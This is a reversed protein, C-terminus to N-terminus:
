ASMIIPPYRLLTCYRTHMCVFGAGPTCRCCGHDADQTHIIRLSTSIHVYRWEEAQSRTLPPTRSLFKRRATRKLPELPAAEGGGEEEQGDAAAAGEVEEQQLSSDGSLDAVATEGHDVLISSSTSSSGEAVGGIDLLDIAECGGGGELDNLLDFLKNRGVNSNRPKRQGQQEGRKSNVDRAEEGDVAASSADFDDDVWAAGGLQTDEGGNEQVELTSAAGTQSCALTAGSTRRRSRSAVAVAAASPARRQQQWVSTPTACSPERTRTTTASTATKTTSTAAKSSSTRWASGTFGDTCCWSQFSWGCALLTCARRIRDPRRRRHLSIVDHHQEKRHHHRERRQRGDSPLRRVM